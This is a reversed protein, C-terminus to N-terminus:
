SNSGGRSWWDGRKRGSAPRCYVARVACCSPLHGFSSWSWGRLKMAFVERIDSWAGAQCLLGNKNPARFRFWLLDDREVERRSASLMSAPPRDHLGASSRPGAYPPPPEAPPRVNVISYPFYTPVEFLRSHFHKYTLSSLARPSHRPIM